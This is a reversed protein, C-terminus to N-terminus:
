SLVFDVARELKVPFDDPYDHGLGPEVVYESRLGNQKMSAHLIKVREFFRDKDGM